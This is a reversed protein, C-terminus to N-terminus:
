FLVDKEKKLPACRKSGLEVVNSMCFVGARVAIAAQQDKVAEFFQNSSAM